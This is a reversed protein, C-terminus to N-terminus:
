DHSPPARRARRLNSRVEVLRHGSSGTRACCLRGRRNPHGFQPRKTLNFNEARFRLGTQKGAPFVREPAMDMKHEGPGRVIGVGSKGFEQDALSTRNRAEPAPEFAARHVSRVAPVVRSFLSGHKRCVYSAQSQLGHELLRTFSTHPLHYNGIFSSQSFPSDESVRPYFERETVNLIAIRKVV